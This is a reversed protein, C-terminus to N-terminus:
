RSGGVGAAVVFRFGTQQLVYVMILALAITVALHTSLNANYNPGANGM